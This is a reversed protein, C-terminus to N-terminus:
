ATKRARATKLSQPGAGWVRLRPGRVSSGLPGAPRNRWVRLQVPGRPTSQSSRVPAFGRAFPQRGPNAALQRLTQAARALIQRLRRNEEKLLQLRRAPSVKGAGENTKRVRSSSKAM